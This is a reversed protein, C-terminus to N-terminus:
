FNYLLGFHTFVGFVLVSPLLFVVATILDQQRATMRRRIPQLSLVRTPSWRPPDGGKQSELSVRGSGLQWSFSREHKTFSLM